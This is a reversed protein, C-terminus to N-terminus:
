LKSLLGIRATFKVPEPPQPVRAATTPAPRRFIASAVSEDAVARLELVYAAGEFIVTLRGSATPDLARVLVFNSGPAHTVHFRLPTGEEVDTGSAAGSEILMDAGAVATLPGPWTITTVERSVPLEVARHPDLPHETITQGSLVPLAVLALAAIIWREM